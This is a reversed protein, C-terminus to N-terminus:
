PMACGEAKVNWGERAATVLWLLVTHMNCWSRRVKLVSDSEPEGHDQEGGWALGM